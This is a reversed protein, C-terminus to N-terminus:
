YGAFEQVLYIENKVNIFKVATLTYEKNFITDRHGRDKVYLDIIFHCLLIKMGFNKKIERKNVLIYNEATFKVKNDYKRIRGLCKYDHRFTVKITDIGKHDGLAKYIDNSFSLKRVPTVTDLFNLAENLALLGDGKTYEVRTSIYSLMFSKLSKPDTRVMNIEDIFSSDLSQSKGAFSLLIFLLLILKKM